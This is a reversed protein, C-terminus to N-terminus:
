IGFCGARGVGHCFSVQSLCAVALGLLLCAHSALVATTPLFLARLGVGGGECGVWGRVEDDEVVLGEFSGRAGYTVESGVVVISVVVAVRQGEEFNSRGRM